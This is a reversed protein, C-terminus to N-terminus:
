KIPMGHIILLWENKDHISMILNFLVHTLM